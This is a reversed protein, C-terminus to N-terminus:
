VSKNVSLNIIADFNDDPATKNRNEVGCVTCKHIIIYGKKGDQDLSIPQM